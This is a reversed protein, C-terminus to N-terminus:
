LLFQKGQKLEFQKNVLFIAFDLNKAASLFNRLLARKRVLSDYIEGNEKQFSKIFNAMDEREESSLAKLMDLTYYIKAVFVTNGAGWKVKEDYLNGSLSYHFFGPIKGGKLKELLQFVKEKLEFIWNMNEM